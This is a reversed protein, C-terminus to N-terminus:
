PSSWDPLWIGQSRGAAPPHSDSPEQPIQLPDRAKPVMKVQGPFQLDSFLTANFTNMLRQADGAGRFDPVAIAPREGRKTIEGPIDAPRQQAWIFAAIAVAICTLVIPRKM